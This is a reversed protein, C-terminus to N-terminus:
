LDPNGVEFGNYELRGHTPTELFNLLRLLTSKGAGSPGVIGLIEGPRVNLDPVDVVCRDGYCHRVDTLRYAHSM